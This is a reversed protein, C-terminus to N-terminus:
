SAALFKRVDDFNGVLQDMIGRESEEAARLVKFARQDVHREIAERIITRLQNPPIADVEVSGRTFKRAITAGERMPKSPRLPLRMSRIQTPTVALKSHHIRKSPFETYRKIREMVSEIISDGKEDHDGLFYLYTEKELLDISEAIDWLFTKSADGRIVSLPVDWQATEQYVLDAIADKECFIMLNVEGNRWFDRRYLEATERLASEVGDFSRPKHIWRGADVIWDNGFPIVAGKPEKGYREQQLWEERMVGVLRIITGKYAAETKDILWAAVALYFLHRVTLPRNAEVIERLAKRMAFIDNKTRRSRVNNDMTLLNFRRTM